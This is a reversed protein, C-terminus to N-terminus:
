ADELRTRKWGTSTKIYLAAGEDDDVWAIEGVEGEGAAPPLARPVLKMTDGAVQLPPLPHDGGGGSPIRTAKGGHVVGGRYTEGLITAGEMNGQYAKALTHGENAFFYNGIYTGHSGDPGILVGAGADDAAWRSYYTRCGFIRQFPKTVYFGAITPSDAYCQTYTDGHGNAYFCYNMPGQDPDFNWVHVFAFDNSSADSRVGTEYGIVVAGNVLSDANEYHIGISGPAYHTHLDVNCRVHSLNIEYRADSHIGKFTADKIELEAVELRCVDEIKLGTISQKAGDLVGGRIWGAPDHSREEAEKDGHKILIADGDFDPLVRIVTHPTMYLSVERPLRLPRDISYVGDGLELTGGGQVRLAKIRQTLEAHVNKTDETM